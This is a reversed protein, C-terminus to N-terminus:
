LPGAPFPNFFLSGLVVGWILFQALTSLLINRRFISIAQQTSLM